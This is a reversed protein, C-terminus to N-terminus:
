KIKKTIKKILEDVPQDTTIKIQTGPMDDYDAKLSDHTLATIQRDADHHSHHRPRTQCRKVREAEDIECIISYIDCKYDAQWRKFREQDQQYHFPAEIILDAGTKIQQEALKFIMMITAKGLRHSDDLTQCELQDYLEEKIFDKQLSVLSLEKALASVLTTKGTGPKGCIIILKSM